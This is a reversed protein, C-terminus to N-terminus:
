EFITYVRLDPDAAIAEATFLVPRWDKNSFRVTQDSFFPSEPDGSQGYTIFAEAVPGDATFEVNYIFSTGYSVPYGDTRLSTGDIREGRPLDAESTTSNGGNTVVNSVGESGYGGHIPIITGNRDAHQMEGLPTDIDFGASRLAEAAAVLRDAIAPDASLGSPTNLPDTPDFPEAWLPGADVLEAGSFGAIFERWVGAGVSDIDFRGDWGDLVDCIATDVGDARCRAVVDALLLDATLARNGIASDRMEIRSFLGDAGADGAEISLQNANGRTRPSVPRADLGHVPSFGGLLEDPNAFWYPDNANFVFDTRELQPMDDFAVVGPDRADPDDVWENVPDSGDLLIVGNDLAIATLGGADVDAKWQAIAEASLNPSSSADTYWIRGDASAAVTNVWPIGQYTAHADIMDDMSQARNMAMFQAVMEDNDANADRFTLVLGDSWGLGPFNIIPGYHSFWLTREVTTMTGDDALVDVDVTASTMARIEGDYVYSTPDGPALELTYATFRRGASVTHSWAVGDTFGILVGPAGLLSAGYVNLEGPITLQVEYFRTAGQWPFHPNGVLMTTGDETREPGIAWANSAMPQEDQTLQAFASEEDTGATGADTTTLSEPPQATAIYNKFPDISARWSLAKYYAALDYEDIPRVWPEGACYGAVGDPGTDALYRNYGAAYGRITEQLEPDTNDFDVAAREYLDM